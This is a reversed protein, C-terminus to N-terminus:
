LISYPIIDNIKTINKTRINQIQRSPARSPLFLSIRKRLYWPVSLFFNFGWAFVGAATFIFSILGLYSFVCFICRSKVLWFGPNKYITYNDHFYILIPPFKIMKVAAPTNAHPNLKKRETGHYKRFRIESKKGERAGLRWIWESYNKKIKIRLTVHNISNSVRFHESTFTSCNFFFTLRCCCPSIGV